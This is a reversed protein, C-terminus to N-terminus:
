QVILRKVATGQKSRVQILYVGNDLQHTNLQVRTGSVSHQMIQQGMTSYVTLQGNIPVSFDIHAVDRAPNPYLSVQQSLDREKIGIVDNACNGPMNNDLWGIRQALWNKFYTIEEDYDQPIPTPEAWIYQGLHPWLTFNRDIAAQIDGRQADIWQYLTDLHLPGQRLESWRCALHNTFLTDAMMDQWWVPMSEFDECGPQSQLYTWGTYDTCSCVDSYGYTQDFDWIPGMNLKGGKSDKDKHMYTSLKYGDSNKSLENVILFDTFSTINIYDNYRNGLGNQYNNAFVADEFENMYGQIYSTQQAQINGAKPYYYQYFMPQNGMSNHNTSYGQPTDELWDIRLIYGGTVSDGALDDADLKAIDVRDNDRKIKETLIYLGQYQGDIIVECYQWRSAYHGMRQFLYFSMPIRIQTKDIVMAHLVWDEEKPMNLLAISTDQGGSTWLEISYNKKDFDQTSNGRFEIGCKGNYHNWPDNISNTQGIGNYIIGMDVMVKPEDVITNGSTNIVVIPLTSTTLQAASEMAPLTLSLLAISYRLLKKM